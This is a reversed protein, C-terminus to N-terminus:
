IQPLHGQAVASSSYRMRLTSDLMRSCNTPPPIRTFTNGIRGLALATM